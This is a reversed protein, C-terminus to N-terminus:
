CRQEELHLWGKAWGHKTLHQIVAVELDKHHLDLVEPSLPQGSALGVLISYAERWGPGHQTDETADTFVEQVAGRVRCGRARCLHATEHLILGVIDPTLQDGRWCRALTWVPYPPLWVTIEAQLPADVVEALGQAGFRGTALATCTSLWRVHIRADRIPNLRAARALRLSQVVLARVAARVDSETQAMDGDLNTMGSGVPLRYASGVCGPVQDKGL